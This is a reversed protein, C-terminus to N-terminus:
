GEVAVIRVCDGLPMGSRVGRVIVDVADPFQVAFASLRRNRRVKLYFRPVVVGGIAAFVAATPLGFGIGMWFILFLM